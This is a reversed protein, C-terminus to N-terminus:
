ETVETLISVKRGKERATFAGTLLMATQATISHTLQTLRPAERVESPGGVPGSREGSLVAVPPPTLTREMSLVSAPTALSEAGSASVGADGM